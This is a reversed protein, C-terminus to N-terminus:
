LMQIDQLLLLLQKRQNHRELFLRLLFLLLELLKLELGQEQFGVPEV